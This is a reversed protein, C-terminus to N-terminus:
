ALTRLSVEPSLAEEISKRSRLGLPNQLLLSAKSSEPITQQAIKLAVQDARLDRQLRTKEAIPAFAAAFLGNLSFLSRFKSQVSIQNCRSLVEDELLASKGSLLSLERVALAALETQSLNQLSKLSLCLTIGKLKQNQCFVIDQTAHISSEHTLVIHDPTSIRAKKALDKIWNWLHPYELPDVREGLVPTIRRQLLRFGDRFSLAALIVPIPLFPVVILPSLWALYSARLWLVALIGLSLHSLWALSPGVSVLLAAWPYTGPLWRSNWRPLLGALAIALICLLSLKGLKRANAGFTELRQYDECVGTLMLAQASPTKCVAELSALQSWQPNELLASPQTRIDVGRESKIAEAAVDFQMKRLQSRLHQSVGIGLAPMVSFLVGLVLLRLPLGPRKSFAHESNM